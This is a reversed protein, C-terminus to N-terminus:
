CYQFCNLREVNFRLLSIPFSAAFCNIRKHVVSYNEMCVWNVAITAKIVEILSKLASYSIQNLSILNVKFLGVRLDVTSSSSCVLISSMFIEKGRMIHLNRTQTRRRGVSSLDLRKMANVNRQAEDEERSVLIAVIARSTSYTLSQSEQVFFREFKKRM